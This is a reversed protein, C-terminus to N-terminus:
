ISNPRKLQRVSVSAKDLTTEPTFSDNLSMRGLVFIGRLPFQLTTARFSPQKRFPNADDDDNWFKVSLSRRLTGGLDRPYSVNV